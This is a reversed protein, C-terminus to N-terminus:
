SMQRMIAVRYKINVNCWVTYINIIPNDRTVGSLIPYDYYKFSPPSGVMYRESRNVADLFAISTRDTLSVLDQYYHHVFLQLDGLM